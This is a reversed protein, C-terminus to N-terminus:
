RPIHVIERGLQVQNCDLCSLHPRWAKTTREGSGMPPGRPSFPPSRKNRHLSHITLLTWIERPGALATTRSRPCRHVTCQPNKLPRGEMRQSVVLFPLMHLRTVFKLHTKNHKVNESHTLLCRSLSEDGAQHRSPQLEVNRWLGFQPRRTEIIPTAAAAPEM